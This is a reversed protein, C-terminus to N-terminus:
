LHSSSIFVSRVSCINFVIGSRSWENQAIHSAELKPMPPAMNCDCQPVFLLFRIEAFELSNVSASSLNEVSIPSHVAIIYVRM